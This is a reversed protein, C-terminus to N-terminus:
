KLSRRIAMKITEHTYRNKVLCLVEYRWMDYSVGNNDEGTFTSIRPIYAEWVDDDDKYEELWTKFEEPTNASPKIDMDSFAKVINDIEEKTFHDSM